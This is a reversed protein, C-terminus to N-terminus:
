SRIWGSAAGPVNHCKHTHTYPFSLGKEHSEERQRRRAGRGHGWPAHGGAGGAHWRTAARSAAQSAERWDRLAGRSGAARELLGRLLSHRCGPGALAPPQTIPQPSPVPLWCLQLAQVGRDTACLTLAIVRSQM